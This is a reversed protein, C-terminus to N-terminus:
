WRTGSRMIGIEGGLIANLYEMNQVENIPYLYSKRWNIHLGSFGEFLVM